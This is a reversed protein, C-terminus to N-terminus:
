IIIDGSGSVLSLELNDIFPFGRNECMHKMGWYYQCCNKPSPKCM